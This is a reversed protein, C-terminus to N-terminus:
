QFYHSKKQLNSSLKLNQFSPDPLVLQTSKIEAIAPLLQVPALRPWEEEIIRRKNEVFSYFSLRTKNCHM